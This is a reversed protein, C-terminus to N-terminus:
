SWTSISSIWASDLLSRIAQLRLGSRKGGAPRATKICRELLVTPDDIKQAVNEHGSGSFRGLIRKRHAYRITPITKAKPNTHADVNVTPM